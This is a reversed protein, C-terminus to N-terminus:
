MWLHMKMLFLYSGTYLWLRVGLADQFVAQMEGRNPDLSTGLLINVKRSYVIVVGGM